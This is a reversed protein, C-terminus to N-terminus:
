TTKGCSVRRGRTRAVPTGAAEGWYVALSEAMSDAGWTYNWQRLVEIQGHLAAKQPDDVPLADYAHLLAPVARAFWPQYPDFAAALLGDPTFDQRNNLLRSMHVGRSTEGGQEVYPPYDARKLSSEGAGNWPSDNVNALWGSRPNHLQPVHELPM